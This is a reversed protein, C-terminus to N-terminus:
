LVCMRSTLVWVLLMLQWLLRYKTLYSLKRCPKGNASQYAPMITGAKVGKKNLFEYLEDVQKRTAAYIIGSHEKNERLFEQVYQRKDVNHMIKLALNDRAFGTLITDEDAVDLLQQLNQRVRDTATATLGLIAPHGPIEALLPLINLYSPRFDHGWQSMVHAEDIAVLEIPLQQIFSFFSPIELREPSVYLMKYHGSRLDAMRQAQVQGALTSNLFTADIGMAALGDVQDKMLSILPSIVLTIGQFMLAPLQYTISKGGGTPMIALAHKHALVKEIIDLQGTRFNDYGFIEKLIESPKQM